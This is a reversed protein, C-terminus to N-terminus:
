HISSKEAAQKWKRANRSDGAKLCYAEIAKYREFRQAKTLGLTLEEIVVQDPTYRALIQWNSATKASKLLEDLNKRTYIGYPKKNKEIEYLKAVVVPTANSLQSPKAASVAKQAAQIQQAKIFEIKGQKEEDSIRKKIVEVDKEKGLKKLVAYFNSDYSGGIRGLSFPPQINQMVERESDYKSFIAISKQYFKEAESYNGGLYYVLGISALTAAIRRDDPHMVQAERNLIKNLTTLAFQNDATTTYHVVIDRIAALVQESNSLKPPGSFCIFRDGTDWSRIYNGGLTIDCALLTDLVKLATNENKQKTYFHFQDALRAQTVLSTPGSQKSAEDVLEQMLLAAKESQGASCLSLAIATSTQKRVIFPNHECESRLADQPLAKRAHALAEEIKKAKIELAALDLWYQYADTLDNKEAHLAAKEALEIQDSLQHTSHNKGGQQYAQSHLIRQMLQARDQPSGEFLVLASKLYSLYEPASSSLSDTMKLNAQSMERKDFKDTKASNELALKYFHQDAKVPMSPLNAFYHHSAALFYWHAAQAYDKLPVALRAALEYQRSNVHNPTRKISANASALAEATAGQLEYLQALCFDLRGLTLNKLHKKYTDEEASTNENGAALLQRQAKKVIEIAENARGKARYVHAIEIIIGVYKDDIPLLEAQSLALYHSAQEFDNREACICAADMNLRAQELSSNGQIEESTVTHINNTPPTKIAAVILKQAREREGAYHYAMALLRLRYQSSYDQIKAQQTFALSSELAHWAQKEDANTVTANYTLEAQVMANKTAAREEVINKQQLTKRLEKLTRDSSDFWGKDALKRALTLVTSFLDLGKAKSRPQEAESQYIALLKAISETAQTQDNRDIASQAEILCQFQRDVSAESKDVVLTAIPSENKLANLAAEVDSAKPFFLPIREAANLHGRYPVIYVQGIRRLSAEAEQLQNAKQLLRAQNFLDIALRQSLHEDNKNKKETLFKEKQAIAHKYLTLAKPIEGKAELYKATDTVNNSYSWPLKAIENDLHAEIEPLYQPRGNAKLAELLATATSLSIHSSQQKFVALALAKAEEDKQLRALTGIAELVISLDDATPLGLPVRASRAGELLTKLYSDGESINGSKYCFIMARLAIKELTEGKPEPLSRADKMMLRYSARELVDIDENPSTQNFSFYEGSDLQELARLFSEIAQKDNQHEWQDNLVRKVKLSKFTIKDLLVKVDATSGVPGLLLQRIEASSKGSLDIGNISILIPTQDNFPSPSDFHLFYGSDETPTIRIPLRGDEANIAGASRATLSVALAILTTQVQNKM